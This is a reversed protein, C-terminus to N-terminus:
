PKILDCKLKKKGCFKCFKSNSKIEKNCCSCNIIFVVELGCNKCFKSSSTIKSFCNKCEFINEIVELNVGKFAERNIDRNKINSNIFHIICSCKLEDEKKFNIPYTTRSKFDSFKISKFENSTYDVDSM